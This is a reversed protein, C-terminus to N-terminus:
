ESTLHSYRHRWNTTLIWFFVFSLLLAKVASCLTECMAMTCYTNTIIILKRLLRQQSKLISSTSEPWIRSKAGNHSLNKMASALGQVLLFTFYLRVMLFSCVMHCCFFLCLLFFLYTPSQWFYVNKSWLVYILLFIFLCGM